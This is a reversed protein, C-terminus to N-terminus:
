VLLQGDLRGLGDGPLAVRARKGRASALRVSDASDRGAPARPASRQWGRAVTIVLVVRVGWVMTRLKRGRALTCERGIGDLGDAGADAGARCVGPLWTRVVTNAVVTAM